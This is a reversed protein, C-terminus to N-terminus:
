PPPGAESRGGPRRDGEAVVRVTASTAQARRDVGTSTLVVVRTRTWEIEAREGAGTAEALLQRARPPGLGALEKDWLPGPDPPASRGGGPRPPPEPGPYAEAAPLAARSAAVAQRVGAAIEGPDGTGTRFSGRRRGERVRILVTRRRGAGPRPELEALCRAAAADRASEIWALETEDATSGALAEGLRGAIEDLSLLDQSLRAQTRNEPRLSPTM